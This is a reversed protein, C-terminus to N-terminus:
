NEAGPSIIFQDINLATVISYLIPNTKFYSAPSFTQDRHYILRRTYKRIYRQSYLFLSIKM